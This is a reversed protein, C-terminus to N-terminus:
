RASHRLAHRRMKSVKRRGSWSVERSRRREPVERRMRRVRNVKSRSRNRGPVKRGMRRMRDVKCVTRMPRKITRKIFTHRKAFMGRKRRGCKTTRRTRRTIM